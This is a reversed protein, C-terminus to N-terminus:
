PKPHAQSHINKLREISNHTYVQTAALSSHGLLEKVANLDAGNGTLHTAFTHRLIHPSKKDITTVLSLYKKVMVYVMKPQLRTGKKSLLLREGSHGFIQKKQDMYNRIRNVMDNSVPIIREKSGKGYVKIYSNGADLSHDQLSLLESQRMGTNYLLSIVMRETEGEFGESFDVHQLLTDMHQKEVYQPLRKSIKQSHITAVPSLSIEQQRIQYKFFSKLTSIKRNITRSVNGEEKSAALWSRIHVAKINQIINEEFHELAYQQFYQLDTTYSLITHPSYRKQFKLYDLYKSVAIDFTLPMFFSIVM